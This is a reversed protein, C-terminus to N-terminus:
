LQKCVNMYPVNVFVQEKIINYAYKLKLNIVYIIYTISHVWTPINFCITTTMPEELSKTVNNSTSFNDRNWIVEM